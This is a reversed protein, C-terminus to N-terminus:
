PSGSPGTRITRTIPAQPVAGPAFLKVEVSPGWLEEVPLVAYAILALVAVVHVGISVILTWRRGRGRKARHLDRELFSSFPPRDADIPRVRRPAARGKRAMHRGIM